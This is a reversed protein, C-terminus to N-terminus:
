LLPTVHGITGVRGLRPRDDTGDWALLMRHMADRSMVALRLQIAAAPDTGGAGADRVGHASLSLTTSPLADVFASQQFCIV